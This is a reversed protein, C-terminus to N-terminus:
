IDYDEQLWILHKCPPEGRHKCCKKFRIDKYSLFVKKSNCIAVPNKCERNYLGVKYNVDGIQFYPSEKCDDEDLVEDEGCESKLKDIKFKLDRKRNEQRKLEESISNKRDIYEMLLGQVTSDRFILDVIEEVIRLNQNKEEYIEQDKEIIKGKISRIEDVLPNDVPTKTVKIIKKTPQQNKPKLKHGKKTHRRRPM